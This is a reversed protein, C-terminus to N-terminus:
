LLTDLGTCHILERHLALRFVLHCKILYNNLIDCVDTQGRVWGALSLFLGTREICCWRRLFVVLELGSLLSRALKVPVLVLVIWPSIQRLFSQRVGRGVSANWHCGLQSSSLSFFAFQALLIWLCHYLCISNLLSHRLILAHNTLGFAWMGRRYYLLCRRLWLRLVMALLKLRFLFFRAAHGWLFSGLSVFVLGLMVRLLLMAALTAKSEGLLFTSVLVIVGHYVVFIRVEQGLLWLGFFIVLVALKHECSLLHDLLDVLQSIRVLWLSRSLCGIQGRHLLMSASDNPLIPMLILLSLLNIDNTAPDHLYLWVHDFISSTSSRNVLSTLTDCWLTSQSCREFLVWWSM